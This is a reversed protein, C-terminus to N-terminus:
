SKRNKLTVNTHYTAIKAAACPQHMTVAIRVMKVDDWNTIKHAQQTQDTIGDQDTDLDYSLQINEVGQLLEERQALGKNNLRLRFLAPTNNKTKCHSASPTNSPGIFYTHSLIRRVQSNSAIPLKNKNFDKAQFLLGETSSTRLYLRRKNNKDKLAANSITEPSLYRVTILDGRLYHKPKICASYDYTKNHTIADNLGLLPQQIMRGWSLDKSCTKAPTSPPASGRIVDASLLEGLYGARHIDKTLLQLAYHADQEIQNAHLITAQHRKVNLYSQILIAMTTLGIVLSILIEVLTVGSQFKIDSKKTIIM